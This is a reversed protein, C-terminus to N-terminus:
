NPRPCMEDAIARLKVFLLRVKREAIVHNEDLPNLLKKRENLMTEAIAFEGRALAAREAREAIDDTEAAVRLHAMGLGIATRFGQSFAVVRGKLDMAPAPRTMLGGLPFAGDGADGTVLLAPASVDMAEIALRTGDGVVGGWRVRQSPFTLLERSDDHPDVILVSLGRLEFPLSPM